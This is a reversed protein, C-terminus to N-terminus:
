SALEADIRRALEDDDVAPPPAAPSPAPEHPVRGPPVSGTRSRAMRRLIVYVVPLGLALFLIPIVYATLGWGEPKPASRLQDGFRAYLLELVEDESAGAAAQTLIWLRLEDAQPSPCDHLSRGPCFPSMLDHTIAYAWQPAEAPDAARAGPAPGLLAVGVGLAAVLQLSRAASRM